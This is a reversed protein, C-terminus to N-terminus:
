LLGFSTLVRQAVPGAVADQPPYAVLLQIVRGGHAYTRHQMVSDKFTFLDERGHSGDLAITEVKPEVGYTMQMAKSFSEIMRMCEDPAMLRRGRAEWTRVAITMRDFMVEALHEQSPDDPTSEVSQAPDAPLEVRYRFQKNIHTRWTLKAKDLEYQSPEKAALLMGPAAATATVMLISALCARRSPMTFDARLAYPGRLTNPMSMPSNRSM